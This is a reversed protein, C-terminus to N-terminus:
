RHCCRDITRFEHTLSCLQSHSAPNTKYLQQLVFYPQYLYDLCLARWHSSARTNLAAERLTHYLRRIWSTQLANLCREGAHCALNLGLDLYENLWEAHPQEDAYATIQLELQQLRVEQASLLVTARITEADPDSFTPYAFPLSRLM